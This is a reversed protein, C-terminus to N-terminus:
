ACTDPHTEFADSLELCTQSFAELVLPDFHAPDTRGDGILIIDKAEEHSFGKKYPRPSRLADYVDAVAVIRAALPIDDGKRGNPYGGGNYREDNNEAIEIALHLYNRKNPFFDNIQRLMNGGETTHSKMTLFEEDTLKGEKRLIADPVGVKGVDHMPAYVSILEIEKETLLGPNNEAFKKTLIQTLLQIRLLHMGTVQDRSESLLSMGLIVARQTAYLEQTRAVVQASLNDRYLKLEIHNRLKACIIGPSYPKRIYDVAGLALGTEEKNSDYEGTVFLVPIDCFKDNQRLIEVFAFGDMGTMNLDTLIIDPTCEPDNELKELAEEASLVSIVDYDPDLIAELLDLNIQVDDVALVKHRMDHKGEKLFEKKFVQRM